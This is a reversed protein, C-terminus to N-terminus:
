VHRVEPHDKLFTQFDRVTVKKSAIAFSRDIRRWHPLEDDSRGKESLPSGMRFEVAGGLHVMTQGQGNVTWRRGEAPQGKREADMKRLAEAGDWDLRRPQPGDMKHRLLWDIM